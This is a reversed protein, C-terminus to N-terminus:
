EAVQFCYTFVGEDPDLAAPDVADPDAEPAAPDTPTFTRLSCIPSYGSDGRLPSAGDVGVMLDFGQGM